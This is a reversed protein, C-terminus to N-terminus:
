EKCWLKVTRDWGCTAFYENGPGLDMGMIRDQTKWRKALTWSDANWINFDGDYGTSALFSGSKDFQVSSVIKTHAPITHSCKQARLDWIRVSGDASGSALYFGNGSWGLSYIERIHGELTQISRGSRMDWVRGVADLGASAVLAGDPHFAVSHVGKSHGEQSLLKTGSEIDWLAWTYDYSATAAWQGSPHVDLGAIRGKHAESVTRYATHENGETSSDWFLLKGEGCGSLLINRAWKLASVKDVHGRLVAKTNLNPVDMLKIEGNWSSAALISDSGFAVAGAPRTSVFQSGLLQYQEIPAMKDRRLNVTEVLSLESQQKQTTLRDRARLISDNTIQRRADLLEESGPTFFEDDDMSVDSDSEEDQLGERDFEDVMLQGLRTRRDAKDEAFLTIPENLSRLKARVDKDDTPVHLKKLIDARRQKELLQRAAVAEERVSSSDVTTKISELDVLEM